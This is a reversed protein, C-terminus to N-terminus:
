TYNLLLFPNHLNATGCASLRVADSKDQPPLMTLESWITSSLSIENLQPLQRLLKMGFSGVPVNRRREGREPYFTSKIKKAVGSWTCVVM